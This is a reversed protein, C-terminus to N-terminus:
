TLLLNKELSMWLKKSGFHKRLTKTVKGISELTDKRLSKQKGAKKEAFWARALLDVTQSEDKRKLEMLHQIYFTTAEEITKDFAASRANCQHAMARLENNLEIGLGRDVPIEQALKKSEAVADKEKTFYL